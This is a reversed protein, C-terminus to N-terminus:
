SHIHYPSFEDESSEDGSSSYEDLSADDDSGIAFRRKWPLPPRRTGTKRYHLWCDVCIVENPAYVCDSRIPVMAPYGHVDEELESESKSDSESFLENSDVLLVNGTMDPEHTPDDSSSATEAIKRVDTNEKEGVQSDTQGPGDPDIRQKIRELMHRWHPQVANYSIPKTCDSCTYGEVDLDPRHHYAFLDHLTEKEWGTHVLPNRKLEEDIFEEFKVKITVLGRLWETFAWSSYMALSTPSEEQPTYDYDLVRRHLDPGKALVTSVPYAYAVFDHLITYGDRFQIGANITEADGLNLLLDSAEQVASFRSIPDLKLSSRITGRCLIDRATDFLTRLVGWGDGNEDSFDMSDTLLRLTDFVESLTAYTTDWLGDAAVEMPTEANHTLTSVDAGASKLVKCLEPHYNQAAFHLPTYRRVAPLNGQRCFEFIVADDPVPCFAKLTTQWGQTSSSLFKLRLGYHVGMRVLWTAPYITYSTEHECQDREYPTLGHRERPIQLQINSDARVTGLFYEMTSKEMRWTSKVWAQRRWFEGSISPDNQTPQSDAAFSKAADWEEARFGASNAHVDSVASPLRGATESQQQISLSSVSQTINMLSRELSIHRNRSLRSYQYQQVLLLTGKLRELAAQFKMLQGHKLVARFATWKRVRSRTSAFGPEIENLLTTLIKVKIWCGNLTAVLTADPEVHQTEYAIRTLVSSLLDLDTSIAQIDEPAEKISTWFDCLSKVSEALQVAISLVAIGSAVTSLPEAM